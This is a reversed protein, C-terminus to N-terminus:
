KPISITFNINLEIVVPKKGKFRQLIFMDAVRAVSLSKKQRHTIGEVLPETKSGHVDLRKM